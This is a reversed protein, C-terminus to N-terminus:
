TPRSSGWCWSTSRRWLPRWTRPWRSWPSCPCSSLRSISGPQRAPSPPPRESERRSPLPYRRPPCGCAIYWSIPHASVCRVANDQVAGLRLQIVVLAAPAHPSLGQSGARSAPQGSRPSVSRQRVANGCPAHRRQIGGLVAALPHRDVRGLSSAPSHFEPISHYLRPCIALGARGLRRAKKLLRM